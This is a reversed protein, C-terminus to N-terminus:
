PARSIIIALNSSRHKGNYDYWRRHFRPWTIKSVKAAIAPNMLFLNHRSCKVAVAWHGDKYTLNRHNPQNQYLVIVLCGKSLNECIVKQTCAYDIHALLGYRRVFKAISGATCGDRPTARIIKNADRETISVNPCFHRVVSLASAVGCTYNTEQVVNAM